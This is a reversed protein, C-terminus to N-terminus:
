GAARGDVMAPTWRPWDRNDNLPRGDVRMVPRPHDLHWLEDDFRRFGDLLTARDVVDNDEGGWGEFREDFGGLLHFAAGTLWFCAGPPERLLYARIAERRIDPAARFCRERIAAHTSPADLCSMRRYPLHGVAGPESFRAANRAVFHRDVLVDADLVCLLETPVPSNLVGTNVTRSKNFMNPQRLFLYQQVFPEIVDRWRPRDDAEVVTVFFQGAGPAQDRLAAVCALLNRLRSDGTRDRFPIVVQVRANPHHTRTGGAASMSLHDTLAAATVPTAHSSAAVEAGLFHDIYIAQDAARIARGARYAMAPERDFLTTLRAQLERYRRVNRADRAIRRYCDAVPGDRSALREWEARISGYAAAGDEWFTASAAPAAPDNLLVAYDALRGAVHIHERNERM